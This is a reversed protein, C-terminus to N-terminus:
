PRLTPDWTLAVKLPHMQERDRSNMNQRMKFRAYIWKDGVRPISYGIGGCNDYQREFRITRTAASGFLQKEFVATATWPPAPGRRSIYKSETIKMVAVSQIWGSQYEKSYAIFLPRPAVTCASAANSLIIAAPMLLAFASVCGHM